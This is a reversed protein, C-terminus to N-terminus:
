VRPESQMRGRGRSKQLGLSSSLQIRREVGDPLADGLHGTYEMRSDERWSKADRKSSALPCSPGM